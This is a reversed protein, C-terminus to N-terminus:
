PQYGEDTCCGSALGWSIDGKEVAGAGRCVSVITSSRSASETIRQALEFKRRNGEREIADVALSAQQYIDFDDTTLPPPVDVSTDGGPKFPRDMLGQKKQRPLTKLAEVLWDPPRKDAERVRQEPPRRTLETPLITFRSGLGGELDSPTVGDWFQQRTSFAIIFPAPWHIKVSEYHRTEATTINNWADYAQKYVSTIQAVFANGGQQNVKQMEHGFENMFCIQLPNRILHKLVGTASGWEGPGILDGAGLAEMLEMGRDKPDGKGFGTPGLIVIYLHTASGTPGKIRRGILTGCIALAVGLAILRNPRISSGVIWDTVAGVLGPVYTLREIGDGQENVDSWSRIVRSPQITPNKFIAIAM